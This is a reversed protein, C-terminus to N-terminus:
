VFKNKSIAKIPQKEIASVSTLLKSITLNVGLNFIYKKINTVGIFVKLVYVIQSYKKKFM